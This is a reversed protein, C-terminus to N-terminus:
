KKAASKRFQIYNRGITRGRDAMRKLEEIPTSRNTRVFSLRKPEAPKGEFEGFSAVVGFWSYEPGADFGKGEIEVRRAIAFAKGKEGFRENQGDMEFVLKIRGKREEMSKLVLVRSYGGHWIQLLYSPEKSSINMQFVTHFQAAEIAEWFGDMRAKTLAPAAEQFAPCISSILLLVVTLLIRNM